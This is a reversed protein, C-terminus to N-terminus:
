QFQFSRILDDFWKDIDYTNDGTFKSVMSEFASFDFRRYELLQLERQLTLLERKKQMLAIQRNLEAEEDGVTNVNQQRQMQNQVQNQMQNQM